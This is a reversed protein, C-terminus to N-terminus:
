VCDQTVKGNLQHLALVVLLAAGDVEVDKELLKFSFGSNLRAM